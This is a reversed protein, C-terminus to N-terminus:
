REPGSGPIGAESDHTTPWRGYDLLASPPTNASVWFDIIRGLAAAYEPFPVPKVVYANAGAEYARAVDVDQASSTLIVVPLLRTAPTARLQQLLSLGSLKPLNLDLLVLVTDRIRDAAAPDCASTLYALAEAGDRMVRLDEVLGTREIVLRALEEDQADDEVLVVSVSV